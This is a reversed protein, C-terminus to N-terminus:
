FAMLRGIVRPTVPVGDLVVPVGAVNERELLVQIGPRGDAQVGVATGVVGPIKMLSDTHHQQAVLAVRLDPGVAPKELQPASPATPAAFPHDTCAYWVAAGATLLVVAAARKLTRVAVMPPSRPELGLVV